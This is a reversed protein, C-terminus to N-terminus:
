GVAPAAHRPLTITFTTGSGEASAVAIRGGHADVIREAIYLGLGLSGTSGRDSARLPVRGKMPNFLGDLRDPPIAIGHNHVVLVVGEDDGSLDVSIRGGEIGHQVANGVLNVLAQAIRGEDWEGVQESCRKIRISSEPHAASVEDVVERVVGCLDMRERVVPIGDGLRSRTFDLLEGVMQITRDASEAIRRTLSRHPEGLQGTELMFKASTSIAGLPTRLDHGLMALFIEKSQQVDQTYRSTSEALAQDIAENFRTLDVIDAPTLQEQTKTWLRIVSARLARYEAVMQEVTFGSAARGAGHEEAATVSPGADPAHGKSKESQAHGGQPTELDAAIVTLMEGAHDRLMEIDMAGSAPGCTRAFADWEVLVEERHERVFESLRM